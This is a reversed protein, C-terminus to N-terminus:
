TEEAIEAGCLAGTISDLSEARLRQTMRSFNGLQSFLRSFGTRQARACFAAGGLAAASMEVAELISASSLKGRGGAATPTEQMEQLLLMTVNRQFEEPLATSAECFIDMRGEAPLSAETIATPVAQALLKQRLLGAALLVYSPRLRPA